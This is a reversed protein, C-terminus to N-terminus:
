PNEYRRIKTKRIKKALVLVFGDTDPGDTGCGGPRMDGVREEASPVLALALSDIHKYGLIVDRFTRFLNGQLPKTLFDGLMQLTPCHRIKIGAQQTRDKIWFYRIDIHRSM